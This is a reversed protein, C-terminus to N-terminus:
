KIRNVYKEFPFVDQRKFYLEKLELKPTKMRREGKASGNYHERLAKMADRGGKSNEIWKWAETGQTLSKLLMHVEINDRKFGAVTLPAVNIHWDEPYVEYAVDDFMITVPADDKSIVYM